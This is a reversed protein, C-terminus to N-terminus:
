KCGRCKKKRCVYNKELINEVDSLKYYFKGNIRSYPLTDCDRMRQLTRASIHLIQMVEPGDIWNEKFEELRSTKVYKVEKKLIRMEELVAQVLDFVNEM